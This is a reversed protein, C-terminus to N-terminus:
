NKARHKYKIVSNCSHYSVYILHYSDFVHVSYSIKVSIAQVMERSLTLFYEPEAKSNNECHARKAQEFCTM